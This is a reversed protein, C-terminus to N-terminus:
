VCLNPCNVAGSVGGLFQVRKPRNAPELWRATSSSPDNRAASLNALSAQSRVLVVSFMKVSGLLSLRTKTSELFEKPGRSCKSTLIRDCYFIQADHMCTKQSPEASFKSWPIDLSLM